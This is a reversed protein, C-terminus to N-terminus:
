RAVGASTRSLRGELEQITWSLAELDARLRANEQGLAEGDGLGVGRTEASAQAGKLERVLERGVREAERLDKELQRLKGAREELAAELRSVDDPTGANEAASLKAIRAEAAALSQELKAKEADRSLLAKQATAEQAVAAALEKGLKENEASLRAVKASLEAKEQVLAGIAAASEGDEAAKKRLTEVESAAHSARASTATLQSELQEIRVDREALEQVLADARAKSEQAADGRAEMASVRSLLEAERGRAARLESELKASTGGVVRSAPLQVISYADTPAAENGAIAVFWEPEEAGTPLLGSDLSVDPDDDPAFDVIAYGVFPTQGLMRVDEFVAAVTDYLEYYGLPETRRSGSTHPTLTFRSEPNPSAIIASGRPSLARRVRRLLAETGPVGSLDPVIAVDFAGDRVAIDASDLPVVTIEKDRNQNAALAARAPEPDYIHVSRAGRSALEPGLDTTADGFVVVRRGDLLPEAYAALVVSPSMPDM